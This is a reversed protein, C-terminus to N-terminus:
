KREELIQKLRDEMLAVSRQIGLKQRIHELARKKKDEYFAHDGYLRKMYSAAMDTDADAWHYGKKFPPIDKELTKMQYDVMCATEESMFETNASWNTAIVPTGVLMAEAMVLGFGEARHLSVFVDVCATLSNVEVKNLTTCIFYINDYGDLISRIYEMDKESQESANLKIVLGAQKNERGFAKKFAEIAGIPNKRVMGSGSDFMMMFLFKDEPLGFYKRDFAPDTPATVSYPLTYVPKDTYKRLTNSIFESPTWVEDLLHFAPIWEEPFEELEWLWYGINYRYDWHEKGVNMFALPFESPNVHILNVNYKFENSIKSDYDTNNMSDGPPVFYEYVTYDWSSHEIIHAVLRMSQGLGTDSKISGVLNIGGPYRDPEFPKIETKELEKAGKSIVKAKIDSLLRQPLVAVLIPRVKEAMDLAIKSFSM